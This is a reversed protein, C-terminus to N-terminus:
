LNNDIWEYRKTLFRRLYAVQENFTSINKMSVPQFGNAISLTDWIEFNMEASTSIINQWNDASNHGTELLEEKIEDWRARARERFSPDALLYNFWNIGIYSDSNSSGLTAWDDYDPADMYMNGFALDFDWVPGMKLKEGRDKTIFCSRHFCSDLNYTLEHLIFWDIFSDVDIYTEYDNLTTIAEDALCMYKYIYDYNEQTLKENKPSKIAIDIASGSPLDFCSFGEIDDEDAGGIELLYGTNPSDERSDLKLRSEKAEITEGLTYVGQYVGNLYVNVPVASPTYSFSGLSKAMDFAVLNRMLSEDAYNAILAWEKSATMGLLPAKEELKIKYPKKPWEWTSHGRGRIKASLAGTSGYDDTMSSDIQITCENYNVREIDGDCTIFVSPILASTAQGVEGTITGANQATEDPPIYNIAYYVEDIPTAKEAPEKEQTSVTSSTDSSDPLASSDSSDMTVDKCGCLLMALAAIIALGKKRRM